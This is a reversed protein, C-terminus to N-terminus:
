YTYEVVVAINTGTLTGGMGVAIGTGTTWSASSITGSSSMVNSSGCTLAASLITTGTGASGMTPNITTTNSASDSKCIIATITRTVSSGNYCWNIVASDDGSTLANSTGSGIVAVTCQGKSYQAPMDAGSSVPKGAPADLEWYTGDYCAQYFRGSAVDGAALTTASKWKAVSKAGLSNVNLTLATGTNATTTTYVVCDGAVPTFSPATTCSQATGSGSSDSCALPVSLDHASKANGTQAILGAPLTLALLFLWCFRNM